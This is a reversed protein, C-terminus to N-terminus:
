ILVGAVCATSFCALTGGIFSKVGLEVVDARREPVLGVLGAIAIGLSGPNAFGCLAYTAITHGRETMSGGVDQLQMYALFENLVTKTGLLSALEPVDRLPVGMLAALPAFVVAFVDTLALSDRPPLSFRDALPMYLASMFPGSVVGLLADLLYVLGIFAILMGAVQIALTLGDSTGRTAADILNRTEVELDVKAAGATRPEGTEPVLLKAVLLAAPASMLSATVLHGPEAGFGAYVVMVSGAITAMFTVMLTAIESRTMDRLYARIATVSEIGTFILLAAGFTEAGSTRFTRRMLWAMLKVLVQIVRLHYLVGALASVFVIVPLVQFAFIPGFQDSDALPGFVMSAGALTSDTLLTVVSAMGPFLAGRLPTKLLLIGIAFQLGVGWLVIRWPVRRRNESFAFALGLMCVLGALSVIRHVDM